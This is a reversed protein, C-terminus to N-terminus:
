QGAPSAPPAEDAVVRLLWGSGGRLRFPAPATLEITGVPASNGHHAIKLDNLGYTGCAWPSFVWLSQESETEEPITICGLKPAPLLKASVIGYGPAHGIIQM